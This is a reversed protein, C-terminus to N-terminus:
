VDSTLFIFAEVERTAFSRLYDPGDMQSHVPPTSVLVSTLSENVLKPNQPNFLRFSPMQIRLTTFYSFELFLPFNWRPVRTPSTDSNRWKLMDSSLLDLSKEQFDQLRSVMLSDCGDMLLLVPPLSRFIERVRLNALHSGFVRTSWTVLPSIVFLSSLWRIWTM